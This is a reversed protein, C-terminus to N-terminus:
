GLVEDIDEDSLGLSQGISVAQERFATVGALSSLLFKRADRELADKREDSIGLCGCVRDIWESERSSKRGDALAMLQLSRVFVEREQESDFPCTRADFDDAASADVGLGREFEDILALEATHFGDCGALARMGSAMWAASEPTIELEEFLQLMADEM